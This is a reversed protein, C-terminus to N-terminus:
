DRQQDHQEKEDIEPTSMWIGHRYTEILHKTHMWMEDPLSNYTFWQWSEIKSPEMVKLEDPNFADGFYFLCVYHKGNEPFWDNTVNRTFRVRALDINTEEKIERIAADIPAEGFDVKGGPLSWEGTGLEGKRKGLLFETVGSEPNTRTVIVGVAVGPYPMPAPTTMTVTCPAATRYKAKRGDNLIREFSTFEISDVTQSAETRVNICNEHVWEEGDPGNVVVTYEKSM